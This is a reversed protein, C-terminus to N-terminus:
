LEYKRYLTVLESPDGNSDVAMLERLKSKIDKFEEAASVNQYTKREVQVAPRCCSLLEMCATMPVQVSMELLKVADSCMKSWSRAHFSRRVRRAARAFSLQWEIQKSSMTNRTRAAEAEEQEVLRHLNRLTENIRMLRYVAHMDSSRLMEQSDKHLLAVELPCRPTKWQEDRDLIASIGLHLKVMKPRTDNAINTDVAYVWLKNEPDCLVRLLAEVQEEHTYVFTTRYKDNVLKKRISQKLECEIDSKALVRHQGNKLLPFCKSLLRASLDVHAEVQEEDMRYKENVLKKQISEKLASLDVDDEDYGDVIKVIEKDITEDIKEDIKENLKERLVQRLECLFAVALSEIRDTLRGLIKQDQMATSKALHEFFATQSPQYYHSHAGDILKVFDMAKVSDFLRAWPMTSDTSLAHWDSRDFHTRETLLQHLPAVDEEILENGDAPRSTGLYQWKTPDVVDCLEKFPLKLIYLYLLDIAKKELIGVESIFKYYDGGHTKFAKQTEKSAAEFQWRFVFTENNENVTSLHIFYAQATLWYLLLTLLMIMVVGMSCYYSWQRPIRISLPWPPPQDDDMPLPGSAFTFSLQMLMCFFGVMMIWELNTTQMTNIQQVMTYKHAYMALFLTVLYTLRDAVDDFPIGDVLGSAVIIVIVPTLNQVVFSNSVRYFDVHVTYLDPRVEDLLSTDFKFDGNAAESHPMCPYLVDTILISSHRCKISEFRKLKKTRIPQLTYPYLVNPATSNSLERSHVRRKNIVNCFSNGWKIKGPEFSLELTHADLPFASLDFHHEVTSFGKMTKKLRVLIMQTGLPRFYRGDATRVYHRTTLKGGSLKELKLSAHQELTLVVQAKGAPFLEKVLEEKLDVLGKNLDIGHERGPQERSSALSSRPILHWRLGVATEDEVNIILRSDFRVGERGAESEIEEEVVHNLKFVPQYYYKESYFNAERSQAYTIEDFLDFWDLNQAYKFTVRDETIEVKHIMEIEVSLQVLPLGYVPEFCKQLEPLRYLLKQFDSKVSRRGSSIMVPWASDSKSNKVPSGPIRLPIM